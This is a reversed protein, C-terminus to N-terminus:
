VTCVKWSMKRLYKLQQLSLKTGDQTSIKFTMDGDFSVNFLDSLDQAADYVGTARFHDYIMYAIQRGQPIRYHEEARQDEVSVSRRFHPNSIINKLASAIKAVHM